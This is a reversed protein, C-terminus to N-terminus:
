GQTLTDLTSAPLRALVVARCEDIRKRGGTGRPALAHAFLSVRLDEVMWRYADLQEDLLVHSHEAHGLALSADLVNQYPRLEDMLAADKSIGNRGLKEWRQLDASLTRSLSSYRISPTNSLFRPPTLSEVHARIDDSIASWADPHPADIAALVRQRKSLLDHAITMARGITTHIHALGSQLLGDFAQKTRITWPDVSQLFALDTTMAVLEDRLEAAPGITSYALRLADIETANDILSKLERRSELVLLRRLGFRMYARATPESDFLRIAASSGADALACWARVTVGARQLDAHEPLEGFDWSVIQERTLSSDISARLRRSLTPGLSRRLASLDSSTDLETGDRDIIRYTMRLHGPMEVRRWVAPPITIGNARSVLRSLSETLSGLGFTLESLAADAFAPAPGFHRRYQKPLRRVLEIVKERILGPVLWECRDEDIQNLAEIPVTLTLGDTDSQPELAYDVPLEGAPVLITSPYLEEAPLQADSRLLDDMTMHLITPRRRESQVRWTEFLETNHIGRPIRSNYFDFRTISDVLLDRKRQRAELSEIEEILRRNHKLFDGGVEASEDVLGHHIFLERSADPNIPGYHVPRDAVLELGFLTVKENAHVRQRDVSWIPDTHTRQVLHHAVREIWKPQVRAVMRAYHKTTHVVDAAVIWQPRIQSIPSSPHIEFRTGHTGQYERRDALKGISVLMGALISRHIAAYMDPESPGPRQASERLQSALRPEPSRSSRGARRKTRDESRDSHGLESLMERLQKHVDSWERLRTHSLFQQKLARKLASSGHQNQLKKWHKWLNLVTVFDSAEDRHRAHHMDADDRKDFPRERPDQVSLFSAVVLMEPLVHEATAELLMRGIRPDVPIHSLEKGIQTLNSHEDIANLERLTEEADRVLREDPREIFPFTTTDGLNLSKMQLLAGALSTRLIEPQTFQARADFDDQAYLRICIGPAVRGCRGMRQNASARSVPEIPLRQLRRRTSYRSVRATGTDVVGHINPVTLSTEAVNTALVIRRRSHDAFVEDQQSASLRSYLPLLDFSKPGNKRLAESAERIEREGPLFVLLDGATDRALEHAADVIADEIPRDHSRVSTEDADVQSPQEVPRYRLEVPYTRGQVSIIPAPSTGNGFHEAFRQTDITASTIIVRLDPRRPLTRKIYGLLFDINLSREHAEDIIITDYRDLYRDSRTENLLVGDTMVKIRTSDSATDTFRVKFGVDGGVSQQLQSALRSAISRAAIRRPQTHAIMGAAGRGVQLCILPLQTSKGSGTDGAVIVVPHRQIACAIEEAHNTVPLDPQLTVHPSTSTRRQRKTVSRELRAEIRKIEAQVEEPDIDGFRISRIRYHAWSADFTMADIARQSLACLADSVETSVGPAVSIRKDTDISASPRKSYTRRRSAM